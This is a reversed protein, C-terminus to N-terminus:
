QMERGRVYWSREGLGSTSPDGAGYVGTFGPREPETYMGSYPGPQGYSRYRYDAGSRYNSGGRYNGAYGNDDERQATSTLFRAALLGLAFAGGLFVAPQRRAYSEVDRVMTQVDKHRLQGTFQEVRDAAKEAYQAIGQQDNQRLHQSTHRLADAVASMSEVVRDKQTSIQTTAQEKAQDVVQGAKEQTQQAVDQMTSGMDGQTGRQQSTGGRQPTTGVVTDSRSQPQESVM